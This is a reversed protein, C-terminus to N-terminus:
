VSLREYRAACQAIHLRRIQHLHGASYFGYLFNLIEPLTAGAHISFPIRTYIKLHSETEESHVSWGHLGARDCLVRLWDQYLSRAISANSPLSRKKWDALRRDDDEAQRKERQKKDLEVKLNEQEKLLAEDSRSDGTMFFLTLGAAAIVGAVVVLMVKERKKLKM